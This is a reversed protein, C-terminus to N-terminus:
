LKWNLSHKNYFEKFIKVKFVIRDGLHIIQSKGGFGMKVRRAKKRVPHISLVRGITVKQGTVIGDAFVEVMANYVKIADEYKLGGVTVFRKLFDQRLLAKREKGLV